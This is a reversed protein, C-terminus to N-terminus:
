LLSAEAVTIALEVIGFHKFNQPVLLLLAM